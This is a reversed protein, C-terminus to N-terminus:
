DAQTLESLSYWLRTQTNEQSGFFSRYMEGVKNIIIWHPTGECQYLDYAKHEEDLYIPFPLEKSTFIEVIEEKTIARGFSSHIGIVEIGKFEQMAKYALPLARGTCGLCDNNYFLILLNNGYYKESINIPQSDLTKAVIEPAKTM